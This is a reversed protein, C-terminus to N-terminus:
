ARWRSHSRSWRRGSRGVTLDVGAQCVRAREAVGALGECGSLEAEYSASRLVAGVTASWWRTGGQATPIADRDLGEAIAELTAGAERERVIRDVVEAPLQRPRGVRQGQRRKEALGERTRQGILRRELQAFVTSMGAMAEGMPSSMDVEFDLTVIEWGERQAREILSAFDLTSRSLRDVKATVLANAEGGKLEALATQIGPRKLNKASYGRDEVTAILDWGRREAEATIAERQTNSGCGRRLRSRPPSASM